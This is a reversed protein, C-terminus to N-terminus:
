NAKLKSYVNELSNVAEEMEKLDSDDLASILNIIHENFMKILKTAVEEGKVTLQLTTKRKDEKSPIREILGKTELQNALYTFSGSEMDVSRVYYSMSKNPHLKLEVLTKLENKKIPIELQPKFSSLFFHMLRPLINSALALKKIQKEKTM